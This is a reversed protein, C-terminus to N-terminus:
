VPAVPKLTHMAHRAPVYELMVPEDIHVVHGISVVVKVVPALVEDEQMLVTIVTEDEDDEADLDVPIITPTTAETISPRIAAPAFASSLCNPHALFVGLAVPVM